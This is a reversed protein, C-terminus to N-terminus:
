QVEETLNRENLIREVEKEALPLDTEVQDLRNVYYTFRKELKRLQAEEKFLYRNYKHREGRGAKIDSKLQKLRKDMKETSNSCTAHMSLVIPMAKQQIRYTDMQYADELPITDSELQKLIEITANVADMREQWAVGDFTELESKFETLKKEMRNIRDLQESKNLDACSAIILAISIVFTWKLM